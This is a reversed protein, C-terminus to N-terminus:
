NPAPPRPQAGSSRTSARPDSASAERSLHEQTSLGRWWASATLKPVVIMLQRPPQNAGAVQSAPTSSISLRGVGCGPRLAALHSAAPQQDPQQYGSPTSMRKNWLLSTQHLSSSSPTWALGLPVSELWLLPQPQPLAQSTTGVFRSPHGGVKLFWSLLLLRPRRPPETPSSDVSLAPPEHKDRTPFLQQLLCYCDERTDKGSFDWLCILRSPWLGQPPLSDAM